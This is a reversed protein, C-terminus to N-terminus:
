PLLILRNSQGRRKGILAMIEREFTKSCVFITEEYGGVEEPALIPREALLRGRMLPNADVFATIVAERLRTMALLRRTLTGTGWILIPERSSVLKEVVDVLAEDKLRCWSLYRGLGVKTECNPMSPRESIQAYSHDSSLARSEVPRSGYAGSLVSDTTGERWEVQWHWIERPALGAEAMMRTMSAASFFNVHEVSFQQYPANECEAFTAVDPQACYLFGGPTLLKAAIRALPGVDRLHEFVGVLLVADFREPWLAHERLTVTRVELDYLRRAAIACVPSPDSGVLNRYGRKKLEALLGGTACGIDLIRAAKDPLHAEIQDAIKEFRKLDYPSEAGDNHAYTYKSREAYYRDLDDQSPIGDAFGAGCKDCVVVDYGDGLPGEFFRQQHL